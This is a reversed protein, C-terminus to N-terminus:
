WTAIPTHGRRRQPLDHRSQVRTCELAAILASRLGYTSRNAEALIIDSTTDLFVAINMVTDGGSTGNLTSAGSFYPTKDTRHDAFRRWCGLWSALRIKSGVLSHLM